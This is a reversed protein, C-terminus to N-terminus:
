FRSSIVLHRVQALSASSPSASLIMLESRSRHALPPSVVPAPFEVPMVPSLPPLTEVFPSSAGALPPAEEAPTESPTVLLADPPAATM